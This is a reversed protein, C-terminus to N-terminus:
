EMIGGGRLSLLALVSGSGKENASRWVVVEEQSHHSVLQNDGLKVWIPSLSVDLHNGVGSLFTPFVTVAM